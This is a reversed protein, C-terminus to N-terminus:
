RNRFEPKRKEMFAKRGEKYDESAFCEDIMRAIKDLDRKDADKVAEAVTAKLTRMTMPANGGITGAVERVYSDLQEGPVVRNVFGMIRAEEASFQRATYFIEKTFSPGVLNVLKKVGSYGYGLGLKAAPIAFTSNESAIRLDCSIAVSCGGGICYGNIMAITPKELTELTKSAKETAANYIAITEESSRNKEFQSIDAGSIFAREGAGKLVVVRINDDAAFDELIEPVAAWMEYSVANHKEPQNFIMWGIAGDKESLMKETMTNAAVKAEM